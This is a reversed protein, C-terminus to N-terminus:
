VNVQEVRSWKGMYMCMYAHISAHISTYVVQYLMGIRGIWRDRVFM